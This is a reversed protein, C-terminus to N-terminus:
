TYSCSAQNDASVRPGRTASSCAGADRREEFLHHHRERSDNPSHGRAAAQVSPKAMEGGIKEIYAAVALADIEELELRRGETWDFFQKVGRAYARRTNRNRINATFFQIFRLRTRENCAGIIAPLTEIGLRVLAPPAPIEDTLLIQAKPM